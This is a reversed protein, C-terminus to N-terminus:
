LKWYPIKAWKRNSYSFLQYQSVYFLFFSKWYDPAQMNFHLARFGSLVKKSSFDKQLAGPQAPSCLSPIQKLLLAVGEM